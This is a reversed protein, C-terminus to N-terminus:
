IYLMEVTVMGLGTKNNVSYQLKRIFGTIDGFTVQKTKDIALLQALEMRVTLKAIRANRVWYSYEQYFQDALGRRRLNENGIALYRRNYSSPAEKPNYEPNPKEARLKLSFRGYRSGVGNDVVMWGHSPVAAMKCLQVLTKGREESSDVEVLMHRGSRSIEQLEELTRTVFYRIDGAGGTVTTGAKSYASAILVTRLNGSNDRVNFTMTKTIFGLESDVFPADSDPFMEQLKAKAQSQTVRISGNYDWEEGYSDCTDPHATVSSGPAIEWTDNGEQDDPDASYDVYADSGSGRMIGLTLGWDHTEIPSVGDDNPEFNDQLYLRYGENIHGDIDFTVPISVPVECPQLDLDTGNVKVILEATLNQATAYIDSKIAFEGPKVVGESMMKEYVYTKGEKAYLKGEVDYFVDPSNYDGDHLDPRRPRMKEDVFLAFRPRADGEREDKMNLDNMIAPTFGVNITEITNEEGTCDGDEADMFGAFEFLSPHLEDYRKADKDVKIGYANGTVPTVYCTKDFASVKHIINAYDANLDWKSYDHDDSTDVWLEKKHPLMDAFGKYYFHTDETGGDYTMRFGRISNEEKTVSIIDCAINQVEESRFLNRLLVIRVRQFNDSFLFRVGFGSEIAKIVDSIDADPFCDSTAYADHLYSNNNMYTQKISAANRDDVEKINVKIREVDPIDDTLHYTNDYEPQGTTFGELSVFFSEDNTIGISKKYDFHEPVLRGSDGFKYWGIHNSYDFKRSPERYACNTNVFFLRRLDEVALMQNEEIHIGLHKMLAKLWYLVFFNPASNLRNAPMYEYEREAEPESTYDPIVSGDQQKKDYSYKQYCLAVNCYPHTPTGNEDEAYPEDTNICDPSFNTDADDTNGTFVKFDGNPFVMRPYQQAPNREDDSDFVLVEDDNPGKVTCEETPSKKNTFVGQANLKLFCRVVRKRWLAVGIRVDSMMPVQNAKAGDIMEQFTKQGSEISVEVNGEGDVEVEDDLKLHGLFLPLGGWWLRSRRKNIQEHLRAGHMEGASGFIHANAEINLTFSFSWVDGSAFIESTDTITISSDEPLIAYKSGNGTLDFIELLLHEM